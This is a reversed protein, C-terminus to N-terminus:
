KRYLRLYSIASPLDKFLMRGGFWFLLVRDAFALWVPDISGPAPLVWWSLMGGFIIITIGPRILRNALNIIGDLLTHGSNHPADHGRASAVSESVLAAVEQSMVHKDKEGPKWNSVLSAVKEGVGLAANATGGLFFKGLKSFFSM